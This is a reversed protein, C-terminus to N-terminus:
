DDRNTRGILGGPMTHRLRALEDITKLELRHQVEQYRRWARARLRELVLRRKRAIKWAREAERAIRVHAEVELGLREMSASLGTIWNRHWELGTLDTGRRRAEQEEDGARQRRVVVDERRALVARLAAEARAMHAAAAEEKKRRDELAAEVRFRFEAM